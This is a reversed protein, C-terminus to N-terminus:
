EYSDGLRLAIKSDFEIDEPIHTAYLIIIDKHKESIERIIRNFASRNDADLGATPEDCLILAPVNLMAQAVAVRKRTGTSLQKMRVSAYEKLNMDALVEEVRAENKESFKVAAIYNLLEKVTINPYINFEQPIYSLIKRIKEVKQYSIGNLLIDGKNPTLITALLKMLTSKGSGNNGVIYNMGETFEHCFNTFIPRKKYSFNLHQISLTSM